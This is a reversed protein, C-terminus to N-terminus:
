EGLKKLERAAIEAASTGPYSKVVSRLEQTASNINDMKLYTLGIKVHADSLKNSEPFNFVKHFAELAKDFQGMSYYCEGIWYQANDALDNNPAVTLIETFGSIASEYRRAEYESRAGNYAANVDFGGPKFVSAAQPRPAPRQGQISSDLRLIQDNIFAINEKIEQIVAMQDTLKTDLQHEFDTLKQNVGNFQNDSEHLAAENKDLRKRLEDIIQTQQELANAPVTKKASAACGSGIAVIMILIVCKSMPKM